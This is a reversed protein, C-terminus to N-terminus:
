AGPRAAVVVMAVDDTLDGGHLREVEGVIEDLLPGADLLREVEGAGSRALLEVLGREGLRESGEGVRGDILGDTYLLLAWDGAFRLANGRWCGPDVFGLPQTVHSVEVARLGGGDALVPPPHGALRLEGAERGPEVSLMCLTAFIAPAHREHLLVEQLLALADDPPEEALMLTRWAVRLCVGLAAEDPGHGSVDGILVHLTGDDLEVADYFDGGLLSRRRGPRYTTSLRLRGDRLLAQPLLGRELRANEREHLRAEILERQSRDARCREIAYRIARALLPGDVAGKVLYDEAGRSLAEIGRQEDDHGTLVVIAADPASARLREVSELGLADPLGLDLLVCDIGPPGSLMEEAEQLREVRMVEVSPAVGTLLSEVLLADGADDEVLLIQTPLSLSM